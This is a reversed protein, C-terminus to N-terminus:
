DEDLKFQSRAPDEIVVTGPSANQWKFKLSPVECEAGNRALSHLSSQLHELM